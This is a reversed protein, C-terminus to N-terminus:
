MTKIEKGSLIIDRKMDVSSGKSRLLVHETAEISINKAKMRIDNMATFSMKDNANLLVTGDDNLTMFVTGDKAIIDIGDPRFKIEKGFATRLYKVDTDAMRHGPDLTEVDEDPSHPKLSNIAMARAEENEPHYLRVTDGIEPMCYWGTEGSSAYMSAYPYWYATGIDQSEDIELHIKINDRATDLVKGFLSCGSIKNNPVYM